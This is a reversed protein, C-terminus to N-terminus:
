AEHAVLLDCPAGEILATAVSGWIAQTMMGAGHTGVALLDAGLQDVAHTLVSYPLGMAVEHRLMESGANPLGGRHVLQVIDREMFRDLEKRADAETEALYEDNGLRSRFPVHFAHFLHLVAEPALRRAQRIAALSFISFDVGVVATRYPGSPMAKVILVPMPCSRVVSTATAENLNFFSDKSADHPGVVILNASIDLAYRQIATRADSRVVEIQPAVGFSKCAQRLLDSAGQVIIGEAAPPLNADMAHVVHLPLGLSASLQAGRAIVPLAHQSLDSGVVIAM